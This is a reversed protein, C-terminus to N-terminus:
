THLADYVSIQHKLLPSLIDCIQVTDSKNKMFNGSFCNSNLFNGYWDILDTVTAPKENLLRTWEDPKDLSTIGPMNAFHVGGLVGVPRGAMAAELALTSGISVVVINLSLFFRANDSGAVKIVRKSRVLDHWKNLNLAGPQSPHEKLILQYDDPLTDLIKEAIELQRTYPSFYNLVAEPEYHLPFLVYKGKLQRADNKSLYGGKFSALLSKCHFFHASTDKDLYYSNKRFVHRYIGKAAALIIDKIRAFVGGYNIVYLPVGLGSKRQEIHGTALLMGNKIANLKLTKLQACDSSFFMYGPLWSPQFHLCLAGQKTFADNFSFNPYGSVPEDIYAIIKFKNILDAILTHVGRVISQMDSQSYYRLYRDNNFCVNIIKQNITNTKNIINNKLYFVHGADDYKKILDEEDKRVVIYIREFEDLQKGIKSFEKALFDRAYFVIANKKM